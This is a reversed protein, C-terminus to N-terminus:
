HRRSTGLAPLFAVAAPAEVLHHSPQLIGADRASFSHLVEAVTPKVQLHSSRLPLSSLAGHHPSLSRLPRRLTSYTVVNPQTASLPM